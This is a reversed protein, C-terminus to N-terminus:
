SIYYLSFNSYEHSVIFRVKLDSDPEVKGSARPMNSFVAPRWGPFFLHRPMFFITRNLIIPLHLLFFSVSFCSVFLSSPFFLFPLLFVTGSGFGAFSSCSCAWSYPPFTRIATSYILILLLFIYVANIICCFLSNTRCFM